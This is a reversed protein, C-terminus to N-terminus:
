LAYILIPVRLAQQCAPGKHHEEADSSVELTVYFSLRPYKEEPSSRTSFELVIWTLMVRGAASSQNLDTFPLAKM